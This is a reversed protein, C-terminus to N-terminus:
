QGAGNSPRQETKMKVIRLRDSKKVRVQHAVNQSKTGPRKGRFALSIAAIMAVM